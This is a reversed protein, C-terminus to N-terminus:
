IEFKYNIIKLKYNISQDPKIFSSNIGEQPYFPEPLLQDIKNIWYGESKDSHYAISYLGLALESNSLINKNNKVFNKFGEIDQKSENLREVVLINFTEIVAPVEKLVLLCVAKKMKLRKYFIDM